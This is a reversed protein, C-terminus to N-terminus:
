FADYWQVPERAQLTRTIPSKFTVVVAVAIVGYKLVRRTVRMWPRPLVLDRAVPQTARNFVIVNALRGLDPVLLLICMALYHSSCLKVPVDYCFNLMVVNTMVAALVLAGLTTTRRFLLLVSGVTEALGSFFVYGPSAGMFTWMLGMPSSEGYTQVLRSASPPPFQGFFLKSAGYALVSFALTYRVVVRLVERLRADRARRRDVAAWVLSAVLAVVAM